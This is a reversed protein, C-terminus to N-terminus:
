GIKASEFGCLVEGGDPPGAASRHSPCPTHPNARASTNSRTHANPKHGQLAPPLPATSPSRDKRTHAQTRTIAQGTQHGSHGAAQQQRSRTHPHTLRHGTTQQHRHGATQRGAPRSDATGTQMACAECTRVCPLRAPAPRGTAIAQRRDTADSGTQRGASRSRRGGGLTNVAGPRTDQYGPYIHGRYDGTKHM